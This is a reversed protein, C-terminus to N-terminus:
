VLVAEVHDPLALAGSDMINVTQVHAVQDGNLQVSSVRSLPALLAGYTTDCYLRTSRQTVTQGASNITAVDQADIFCPIDVSAAYRPGTTGSGLYQEVTATHVYFAALTM